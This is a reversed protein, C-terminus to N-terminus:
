SEYLSDSTAPAEQNRIPMPRDRDKNVVCLIRLTQQANARFQHPQWPGVHVTDMPQIPGWVEGLRVEGSGHLVMVFHEHEHKEFTTYGGPELEFVRAEFASHDTSHLVRRCVREWTGPEDKYRDVPVDPWDASPGFNGIM